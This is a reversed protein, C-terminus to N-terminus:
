SRDGNFARAIAQGLKRANPRFATVGKDRRIEDLERQIEQEKTAQEAEAERAANAVRRAQLEEYTM